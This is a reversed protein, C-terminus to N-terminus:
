RTGRPVWLEQLLIRDKTKTVAYVKLGVVQLEADPPVDRRWLMRTGRWATVGDQMPLAGVPRGTRYGGYSDMVLCGDVGYPIVRGFGASGNRSEHDLERGTRADLIAMFNDGATVYILGTAEIYAFDIVVQPVEYQWVVRKNADLLYLTHGAAALSRGSPLVSVKSSESLEGWELAQKYDLPLTTGSHANKWAQLEPSDGFDYEDEAPVCDGVPPPAAPAAAPTSLYVAPPTSVYPAPKTEAAPERKL